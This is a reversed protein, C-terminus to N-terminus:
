SVYLDLTEEFHRILSEQYLAHTTGPYFKSHLGRQMGALNSLDQDFVAGLRSGPMAESFTTGAPYAVILSNPPRTSAQEPFTLLWVELISSDPDHANPRFRWVNHGASGMGVFAVVNPFLLYGHSDVFDADAHMSVDIGRIAYSERWLEALLERATRGESFERLARECSGSPLIKSLSELRTELYTEEDVEFPSNPSPRMAHVLKGHKGLIEFSSDVDSSYTSLQPHTWPVHYIEPFAALAVKWNCPVVISVALQRYRKEMMYGAFLDRVPGLFESLPEPESALSVFVFGSWTEVAFRPLGARQSDAVPFDWDNVIELLSGDLGYRWGHFPCRLEAARGAGEKICTARHRCVNSLARLVGDAGRVVLVSEDGIQYEVYDGVEAVESELCVIQWVNPWLDRFEADCFAQSTYREPGFVRPCQYNTLARAELQERTWPVSLSDSM